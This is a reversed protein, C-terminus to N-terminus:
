VWFHAPVAALTIEKRFYFVGVDKQPADPCAIWHAHWKDGILAPNLPKADQAVAAGASFFLAAFLLVRSM